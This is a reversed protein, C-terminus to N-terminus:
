RGKRNERALREFYGWVNRATADWRFTRSHELAKKALAEARTPSQLADAIRGAAEDRRLPNFYWGNGGTVERLVAIDSAVVPLGCSAAELVPLGFGEYRSPLVFCRTKQMRRVIELDDPATLFEIRDAIGYRRAMSALHKRYAPDGPLILCLCHERRLSEDIGAFAPILVDSNKSPNDSAFALIGKREAMPNEAYQMSVFPERLGPWAVCMDETPLGLLDEASQAASSSIALLGTLKKLREMRNRYQKRVEVPWTDYFDERQELPILDYLTAVTVMDGLVKWHFPGHLPSAYHVIDANWKRAAGSLARADNEGRGDLRRIRSRVGELCPSAIPFVEAPLTEDWEIAKREVDEVIAVQGRGNQAAFRMLAEALGRSYHGIGRNADRTQLIRLDLLVRLPRCPSTALIAEGSM